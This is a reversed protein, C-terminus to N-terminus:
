LNRYYELAERIASETVPIDFCAKGVKDLLTCLITGQQNKKDQKALHTIAELSDLPIAVKGFIALIFDELEEAEESSLSAYRISLQAEAIMGIAIAEGHLLPTASELFHSEVAHGVTHGFNLIKRLGGERFDQDVVWSKVRVSHRIHEVWPQNTLAVSRLKNWYVLDQILAHKIVEAFGSRLEQEPLTKLFQADILVQQPEQFLGIHNKFGNFDIGLKGGVSADVQALLTTPINVFAVGRKYTAACFGGMDGIVGGGLNILLGKRDFHQETLQQWIHACTDLNKNVEGSKTEALTYDSPLVKQILPLCHEQTNEDVLVAVQSFNNKALLNSLEEAISETITVNDAPM